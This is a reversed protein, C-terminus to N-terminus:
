LKKLNVKPLIRERLDIKIKHYNSPGIETEFLAGGRNTSQCERVNSDWSQNVSKEYALTRRTCLMSERQKSAAKVAILLGRDTKTIRRAAQPLILKLM